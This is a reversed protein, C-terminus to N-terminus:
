ENTNNQSETMFKWTWTQTYKGCPCVWGNKTAILSGESKGSVRECKPVDSPSCCTFLHFSGFDQYDNLNKVQEETFPANIKEM